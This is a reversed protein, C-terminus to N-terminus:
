LCYHGSYFCVELHLMVENFSTEHYKMFINIVDNIKLLIVDNFLLAMIAKYREVPPYM